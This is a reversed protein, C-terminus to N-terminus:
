GEQQFKMKEWNLCCIEVKHFFWLLLIITLIIYIIPYANYFIKIIKEFEDIDEFFKAWIFIKLLLPLVFPTIFVLLTTLIMKLLPKIVKEM